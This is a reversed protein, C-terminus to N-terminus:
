ASRRPLSRGRGRTGATDSAASTSPVRIHRPPSQQFRARNRGDVPGGSGDEPGSPASRGPKSTGHHRTGDRRSPIIRWSRRTDIDRDSGGDPWRTQAFLSIARRKKCKAVFTHLERAVDPPFIEDVARGIVEERSMGYLRLTAPNIEDYQFRGDERRSLVAHCESSHTYFTQVNMLEATREEVRRELLQNLERLKEHARYPKQSTSVRSSFAPSRGAMVSFPSM